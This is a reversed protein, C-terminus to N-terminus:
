SANGPLRGVALEAVPALFSAPDPPDTMFFLIPQIALVDDGVDVWIGDPSEWAPLGAVTTDHGDDYDIRVILLGDEMPQTATPDPGEIRLDLTYLAEAPDSDYTCNSPGAATSVFRLGSLENLEDLSVLCLDVPAPGEPSAAPGQAAVPTSAIALLTVIVLAHRRTGM